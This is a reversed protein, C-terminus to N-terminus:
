LLPVTGMRLATAWATGKLTALPHPFKADWKAADARGSVTSGGVKPQPTHNIAAKRRMSALSRLTGAKVRCNLVM